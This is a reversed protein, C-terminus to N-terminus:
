AASAIPSLPALRALRRAKRRRLIKLGAFVIFGIAAVVAITRFMDNYALVWSQQTVQQSLLTAAQNARLSADNLVPAYAGSLQNLRLVVQPDGLTLHETLQAYHLRQREAVLTTLWASGVLGALAQGGSFVAIFSIINKMGGTIVHMFGTLLATALFMSSALALLTQSLYLDHPRTLVTAQSDMWSAAMILLLAAYGPWDFKKGPLTPLILAFGLVTGVSVWTFLPHMQDNTYGLTNMLGIAGVSQQSLLVRFLLVALMFRLMFPSVLWHLDLMPKERNLELMVYAGFCAMSLALCVGLWPTDSWWHLRGQTLVVCLLALAAAYLAFVIGDGRAFVKQTPMPKLRVLNILVLSLVAMGIDVLHLGQWLGIQLLDESMIRSLPSGLLPIGSGLVAGLLAKPQPMAQVMYLVALTSIPAAALGLAARLLIATGLHQTFVHMVSLLLFIGISIDAFWRLGYQYRVKTLLLSASINTAFYASTLWAAESATAGFSGQIATINANVLNVALGQTLGLLLSMGIFVLGHNWDHPAATAAPAAANDGPRPQTTSM